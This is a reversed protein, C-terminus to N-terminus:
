DGFYRNRSGTEHYHNWCDLKTQTTPYVIVPKAEEEKQKAYEKMERWVVKLAYSMSYMRNKVLYWARKFLRSKNFSSTAKM